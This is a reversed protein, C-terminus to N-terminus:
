TSITMRRWASTWQAILADLEQRLRPLIQDYPYAGLSESGRQLNVFEAECRLGLRAQDTEGPGNM